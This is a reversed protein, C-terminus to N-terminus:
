PQLVCTIDRYRFQNEKGVFGRNGYSKVLSSIKICKFKVGLLWWPVMEALSILCITLNAAKQHTNKVFFLTSGSLQHFLSEM